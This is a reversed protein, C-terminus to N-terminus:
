VGVAPTLTRAVAAAVRYLRRAILVCAVIPAAVVYGNPEPWFNRKVLKLRSRRVM